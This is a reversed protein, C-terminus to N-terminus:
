AAEIGHRQMYRMRAQAVKEERLRRREERQAELSKPKDSPAAEKVWDDKSESTKEFGDLFGMAKPKDDKESNMDEGDESDERDRNEDGKTPAQYKSFASQNAKSAHPDEEKSPNTVGMAVNQNLNGYFNAMGGTSKTVDSDDELKARKDLFEKREQLQRKYAATVFREKGRLEVNENEEQAQERAMKREYAIDRDIKREQATELLKAIYRSERPASNSKDDNNNNNGHTTTTVASEEDYNYLHSTSEDAAAKQLEKQARKRLAEQEQKLARNVMARADTAAATSADPQDNDSDDSSDDGFVNKSKRNTGTGRQNLGYGIGGVGGSGNTKKKKKSAAATSLSINM